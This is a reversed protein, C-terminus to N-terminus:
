GARGLRQVFREALERRQGFHVHLYSALLNGRAYGVADKPVEGRTGKLSWAATDDAVHTDRVWSSYRFEHGRLAEGPEALLNSRLATAHRYGLAALKGSMRAFGPLLGGMSWTRGDSDTLGATLVMFGGCEAYIPLDAAHMDKLAGWFGTNSALAPGHLEPYGGGLYVGAAGPDPREGRLPSFFEVAAGAEILLELNEPYYFCFAEDRAVAIVPRAASRRPDTVHAPWSGSLHTDGGGTSSPRAELHSGAAPESTRDGASTATSGVAVEGTRERAGAAGRAVGVIGDVDFRASVAVAMQAILADSDIQEGGPVLGLHREPIQLQMERPLWGMMPLTTAREIAEACGQAHGESGAFNLVVGRIAVAPDFHKYGLAAAAASRASGSIDFVLLVPANLLKAIQATSGREDHWDSGDYLGMVGEVVAIDADQCARAFSELLQTDSLMWTDLNRCPRGAAREHYSPDVYDPGCKFPQVILGQQRLAAILGATITTKGVNSSAGAIVIRPIEFAHKV